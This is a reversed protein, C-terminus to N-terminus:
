GGTNTFIEEHVPVTHIPAVAKDPCKFAMKGNTKFLNQFDLTVHIPEV